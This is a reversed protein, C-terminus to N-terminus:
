TFREPNFLLINHIHQMAERETDFPGEPTAPTGSPAHFVAYM